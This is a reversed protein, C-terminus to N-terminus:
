QQISKEVNKIWDNLQKIAPLIHTELVQELNVPQNNEDFLQDDIISYDKVSFQGKKVETSDERFKDMLNRRIHIGDSPFFGERNGAMYIFYKDDKRYIKLGQGRSTLELNVFDLPHAHLIEEKLTTRTEEVSYKKELNTDLRKDKALCNYIKRILIKVEDNSTHDQTNISGRTLLIMEELEFTDDEIMPKLQDIHEAELDGEIEKALTITLKRQKPTIKERISQHAKQKLYICRQLEDKFDNIIKKTNEVYDSTSLPLENDLVDDIMDIFEGYSVAQWKNRTSREGLPTLYIYYPILGKEEQLRTLTEEYYVLQSKGKRQGEEAYQKLEIAICLKESLDKYLVDIYEYENMVKIQKNFDPDYNYQVGLQQLLKHAFINGLQHNENPDLLWRFMKSLRTEHASRDQASEIKGYEIISWFNPRELMDFHHQVWDAGRIKKLTEVYDKYDKETYIM